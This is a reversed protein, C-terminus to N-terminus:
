NSGTRMRHGWDFERDTVISEMRRIRSELRDFRQKVRHIAGERSHIYSDYFEEEAYTELPVMPEKSVLFVILGYLIVGPFFGTFVTVIIAFIRLWFLSLDYTRAFGKVVGFFLGKRSRYYRTKRSISLNRALPEKKMILGLMIYLAAMPFFASIFFGVIVGLRIWIVPFGFYNAIGKLVGLFIRDRSRYLGGRATTTKGRM